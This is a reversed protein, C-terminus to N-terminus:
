SELAASRRHHTRSLLQCAPLGRLQVDLRPLLIGSAVLGGNMVCILPCRWRAFGQQNGNGHPRIRGRGRGEHVPLGAQRM